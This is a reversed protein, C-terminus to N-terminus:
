VWIIDGQNKSSFGVRKSYWFRQYVEVVDTLNKCNKFLINTKTNITEDRAKANSKGTEPDFSQATVIYKM